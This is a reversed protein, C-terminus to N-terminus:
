LSAASVYEHFTTRHLDSIKFSKMALARKERIKLLKEKENVVHKIKSEIKKKLRNNKKIRLFILKEKEYEAELSSLLALAMLSWKNFIDKKFLKPRIRNSPPIKAELADLLESEIKLINELDNIELKEEGIIKVEKKKYQKLLRNDFFIIRKIMEYITHEIKDIYKKSLVGANKKLYKAPMNSKVAKVILSKKIVGLEELFSEELYNNISKIKHLIARIIAINTKIKKLAKDNIQKKNVPFITIVLEHLNKVLGKKKNEASIDKRFLSKEYKGIQVKLPKGAKNVERAIRKYSDIYGKEIDVRM